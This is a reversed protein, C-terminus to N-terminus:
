ATTSGDLLRRLDGVTEIELAEEEPVETLDFEVEMATVLELLGLSDFGLDAILLLDDDIPPPDIPCLELLLDTLRTHDTSEATAPPKTGEFSM